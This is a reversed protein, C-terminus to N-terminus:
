SLPAPTGVTVVVLVHRLVVLVYYYPLGYEHTNVVYPDRVTVILIKYNTWIVPLIKYNTMTIVVHIKSKM